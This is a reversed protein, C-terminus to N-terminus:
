DESCNKGKILEMGKIKAANQDLTITSKCGESQNIMSILCDPFDAKGSKAMRLANWVVQPEQVQFQVTRLIQEIIALAQKNGVQYCRRLVWVLECLVIHNIFCPSKRSCRSELFNTVLRAQDPDDQTIYRVLVNTDLGIV